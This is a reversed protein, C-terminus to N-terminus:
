LDARFEGREIAVRLDKNTAALLRVDIRSTTLSGVARVEGEQLVRLLMAQARPALDAVEDLFLTGGHAARLLGPHQRWAGTFAGREHGFFESALLDLSFEACNITVYPAGRRRSLQQLATAVLEKGTGREGLILVTAETPAVQEILRYLVQMPASQGIIGHFSPLEGSAM